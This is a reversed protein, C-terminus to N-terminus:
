KEVKESHTHTGRERYTAYDFKPSWKQDHCARCTQETVPATREKEPSKSHAVGPGHCAECQVSELDMSTELDVFGGLHGFGTTHCPLCTKDNQKNELLISNLAVGHKTTVWSNYEANHCGACATATAYPSPPRTAKEGEAQRQARLREEQKHRDVRAKVLSDERVETSLAVLRGSYGSIKRQPDLVLHLEGLNAGRSGPSVVITQGIKKPTPLEAPRKAEILIDIGPVRALLTDVDPETMSVLAIVLDVKKRLTPLLRAAVAIPDDVSNEPKSEYSYVIYSKTLGVIGVTLNGIKRIEYAQFPKKATLVSNATLFPFSAKRRLSTLYARDYRLERQGLNFADYGMLNMTEIITEASLM